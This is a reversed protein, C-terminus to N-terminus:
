RHKGCAREGCVMCFVRLAAARVEPPFRELAEVIQMAHEWVSALLVARVEASSCVTTHGEEPELFFCGNKEYSRRLRYETTDGPFGFCDGLRLDGVRIQVGLVDGPEM